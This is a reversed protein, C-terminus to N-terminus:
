LDCEHELHETCAIAIGLARLHVNYAGAAAICMGVFIVLLERLLVLTHINKERGEVVSSSFAPDCRVGNQKM